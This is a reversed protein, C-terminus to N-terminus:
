RAPQVKLRNEVNKVGSVSEAIDEARRKEPWENVMEMLTGECSQVSVEMDSADVDPDDTLRDLIDDRIREDSRAYNGPGKGKHPGNVM